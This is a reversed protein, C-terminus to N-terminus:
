PRASPNETQQNAQHQDWAKQAEATCEAFIDHGFKQNAATVSVSDYADVYSRQSSSVMCGAVSRLTVGYRQQLLWRFDQMWPAPYGFTQVEYYGNAVDSRAARRGLVSASYSWATLLSALVFTAAAILKKPHRLLTKIVRLRNTPTLM